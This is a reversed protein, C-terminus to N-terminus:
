GWSPAVDYWRARCCWAKLATRSPLSCLCNWPLSLLSGNRRMSAAVQSVLLVAMDRMLGEPLSSPELEDGVEQQQSQQWVPKGKGSGREQQQQQEVQYPTQQHSIRDACPAAKFQRNHLQEAEGPISQLQLLFQVLQQSNQIPSGDRTDGVECQQQESLSDFSSGPKHLSGSRTFSGTQPQDDDHDCQDIAM